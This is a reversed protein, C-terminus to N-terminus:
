YLYSNNARGFASGDGASLVASTRLVQNCKRYWDPTQKIVTKLVATKILHKSQLLNETCYLQRSRCRSLHFVHVLKVQELRGFYFKAGKLYVPATVITQWDWHGRRRIRPNAAARKSPNHTRIGGPAYIDRQQSHPTFDPVPKQTPGIV